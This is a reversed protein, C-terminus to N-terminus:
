EFCEAEWMKSATRWWWATREFYGPEREYAEVLASAEPQVRTLRIRRSIWIRAGNGCVSKMCLKAPCLGWM